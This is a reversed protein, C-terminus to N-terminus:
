LRGWRAPNLLDVDNAHLEAPVIPFPGSAALLIEKLQSLSDVGIVVKSIELFSLAHRLCAQLPTLGTQKLWNEYSAWLPGWRDFKGPRNSINMLLIGQLFVSRVHLETGQKSFRSLWGSDILRCDLINFPAQVIDFDYRKFLADLELPDYISIGIKGVLGDQKLKQLAYYLQEGGPELLQEPRHSLLGYLSGIKLHQLSETVTKNVWRPIDQCGKPVGPLKSVVQWDQVGIVGLRQESDGYDIATDLTDLGSACCHKIIAQAEGFSIKGNQNAIGYNLGFQATGLALRRRPDFAPELM